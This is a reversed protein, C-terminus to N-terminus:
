RRSIYINTKILCQGFNIIAKNNLSCDNWNKLKFFGPVKLPIRVLASRESSIWSRTLSPAKGPLFGGLHATIFLYWDRRAQSVLGLNRSLEDHGQSRHGPPQLFWSQSGVWVIFISIEPESLQKDIQKFTRKWNKTTHELNLLSETQNYGCSKLM